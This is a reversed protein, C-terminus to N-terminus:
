GFKADLICIGYIKIHTVISIRAYSEIKSNLLQSGTGNPAVLRLGGSNFDKVSFSVALIFDFDFWRAGM